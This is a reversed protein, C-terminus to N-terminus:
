KPDERPGHVARKRAHYARMWVRNHARKCERCTRQGRAYITNEPTYEHGRICCTRRAAAASPSVGRLFNERPTVPELHDPNVCAKNRCIHDIHLGTPIPGVLLEYAVRHAPRQRGHVWMAGYGDGNRGAAWIWCGWGDTKDVKSWFREEITM